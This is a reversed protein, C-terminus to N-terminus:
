VFTRSCGCQAFISRMKGHAAVSFFTDNCQEHCRCYLPCPCHNACLVGIIHWISAFVTFCVYNQYKRMSIMKRSEPKKELSDKSISVLHFLMSVISIITDHVCTVVNADSKERHNSVNTCWWDVDFDCKSDSERSSSCFWFLFFHILLFSNNPALEAPRDHQFWTSSRSMNIGDCNHLIAVREVCVKRLPSEFHM